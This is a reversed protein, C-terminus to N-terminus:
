TVHLETSLIQGIHAFLRCHDVDRVAGERVSCYWTVWVNPSDTFMVSNILPKLSSFIREWAQLRSESRETTAVGRM